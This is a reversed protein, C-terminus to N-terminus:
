FPVAVAIMLMFEKDTLNLAKPLRSITKRGPLRKGSEYLSVSADTVNLLEALSKQTLQERKRLARLMEGFGLSRGAKEVSAVKSM